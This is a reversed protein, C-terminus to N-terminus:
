ATPGDDLKVGRWARHQHFSKRGKSENWAQVAAEPSKGLYGFHEGGWYTFCAEGFGKREYPGIHVPKEGDEFWPTIELDSM